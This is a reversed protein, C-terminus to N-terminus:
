FMSHSQTPYKGQAAEGDDCYGPPEAPADPQSASPADNVLKNKKAARETEMDADRRRKAAMM